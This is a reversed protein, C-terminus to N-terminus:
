KATSLNSSLAWYGTKQTEWFARTGERSIHNESERIEFICCTGFHAWRLALVLRTAACQSCLLYSIMTSNCDDRSFLSTRGSSSTNLDSCQPSITPHSIVRLSTIWTDGSFPDLM